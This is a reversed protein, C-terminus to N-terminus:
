LCEEETLLWWEYEVDQRGGTELVFDAQFSEVGQDILQRRTPKNAFVQVYYYGDQNYENIARQLIWVKM